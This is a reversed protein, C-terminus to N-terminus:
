IHYTYFILAPRKSPAFRSKEEFSVSTLISGGCVMCLCVAAKRWLSSQTKRGLCYNSNVFTGSYLQASSNERFFNFFFLINCCIIFFSCSKKSSYRYIFGIKFFNTSKTKCTGTWRTVLYGRKNLRNCLTVGLWWSSLFLMLNAWSLISAARSCIFLTLFSNIEKPYDVWSPLIKPGTKRNHSLVKWNENRSLFSTLLM